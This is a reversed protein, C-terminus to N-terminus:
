RAVQVPASLLRIRNTGIATEKAHLWGILDRKVSTRKADLVARRDLELRVEDLSKGPRELSSFLHVRISDGHLACTPPSIFVREM